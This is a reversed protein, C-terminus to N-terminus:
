GGGEGDGFGGGEEGFLGGGGAFAGAIGGVVGGAGEGAEHGPVGGAGFGAAAEVVARALRLFLAFYGAVRTCGDRVFVGFSGCFGVGGCGGLDEGAFAHGVEGGADVGGERDGAKDGFAFFEDADSIAFRLGFFSHLTHLGLPPFYFGSALLFLLLSTVLRENCVRVITALSVRGRARRYCFADTFGVLFGLLPSCRANVAGVVVVGPGDDGYLAFLGGSDVFTQHAEM